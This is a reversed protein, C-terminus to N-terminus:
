SSSFRERPHWILAERIRAESAFSAWRSGRSHVQNKERGRDGRFVLAEGGEAGRRPCPHEPARELAGFRLAHLAPLIQAPHALRACDLRHPLVRTSNGDTGTGFPSSNLPMAPAIAARPLAPVKQTVNFLDAEQERLKVFHRRLYGKMKTEGRRIGEERKDLELERAKLERADAPAEARRQRKRARREAHSAQVRDARRRTMRAEPSLRASRFASGRGKQIMLLIM